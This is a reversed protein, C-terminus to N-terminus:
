STKAKQRSVIIGTLEDVAQGPTRLTQREQAEALMPPCLNEDHTFREAKQLDNDIRSKEERRENLEKSRLNLTENHKQKRLNYKENLQQLKDTILKKKTKFEEEHDFLEERDRQYDFVM